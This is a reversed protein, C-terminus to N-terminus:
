NRCRKSQTENAPDTREDSCVTIPWAIGNASDAYILDIIATRREAFMRATSDLADSVTDPPSAFRFRGNGEDSLIGNRVFYQIAVSIATTGMYLSNSAEAITLPANSHM